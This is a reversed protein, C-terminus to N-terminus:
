TFLSLSTAFPNNLFLMLFIDLCIFLEKSNNLSIFYEYLKGQHGYFIKSRPNYVIINGLKLCASLALISLLDVREKVILGL